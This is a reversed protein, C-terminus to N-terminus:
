NTEINTGDDNTIPTGDDNLLVNAPIGGLGVEVMDIDWHRNKMDFVGRNFAFIVAQAGSVNLDDQFCGIVDVHPDIDNDTLDYMPLALLQRPTSTQDGLEGGIIELLPDNEAGGRTNWNTTYDLVTAANLTAVESNAHCVVAATGSTGSLTIKDKRKLSPQATTTLEVEGHLDGTKNVVTTDYGFAGNTATATMWAPTGTTAITVGIALYAAANATVFNSVTTGIGAPDWTMVRLLNRITIWATGSSSPHMKITDVQNVAVQNARILTVVGSLDGTANTISTAGTFDIGATASEFYLANSACTLVVSPNTLAAYHSAWATVFDQATQALSGAVMLGLSGRFQEIVNIIGSDVVDGLLYEREEEIGEIANTIEWTKAVVEKIDTISKEISKKHAARLAGQAFSSQAGNLWGFLFSFLKIKKQKLITIKDSTCYFRIDGLSLYIGKNTSFLMITYPGDIPLGPINREFTIWEGQGKPVTVTSVTLYDPSANWAVYNEDDEKLYYDGANNFILVVFDLNSVDAGTLNIFRYDFGIKLVGTTQKANTGFQQYIYSTLDPVTVPTTSIFTIGEIEDVASAFSVPRQYGAMGIRTWKDFLYTDNDYTDSAFKYNQIWSEKNGYDQDMTINKVASLPLMRGGNHDRLDATASTSRRLPMLATITSGTKTTVATFTRAYATTIMETPRYVVFVGRRQRILAHWKALLYELAEYCSMDDFVSADIYTQDIPSDDIGSAMRYEYINVIETFTTFGIKGLIDLLIQSERLRGTYAVGDSVEYPIEKLLGLGCNVSIAVDYPYDDYPESYNNVNVYGRFYLTHAAGYYISCRMKMDTMTFFELYQFMSISKVRLTAKTGRVPNKLVDDADSLPEYTGPDGSAQMMTIDGVFPDLEFDWRWELGQIDFFECRYKVGWAM